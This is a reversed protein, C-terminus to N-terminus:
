CKSLCGHGGDTFRCKPVKEMADKVYAEMGSNHYVIDFAAQALNVHPAAAAVDENEGEKPLMWEAGFKEFDLVPLLDDRVSSIMREFQEIKQEELWKVKFIVERPQEEKYRLQNQLYRGEVLAFGAKQTEDYNVSMVGPFRPLIIYSEKGEKENRRHQLMAVSDPWILTRGVAAAIQVTFAIQRHVASSSGAINIVRLLKPPNSYYGDLDTFGGFNLGLYNKMSQEVCTYHILTSENIFASATPENGFLDRDWSVFMMNRFTSMDLRHVKLTSMNYTAAITVNEMKRAIENMISQDWNHTKNWKAFSQEFFRQTTSTPRAWFWGINLAKSPPPFDPQFQIDWTDDSLPLMETFPDRTGTFFVDGDM